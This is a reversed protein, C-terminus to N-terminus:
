CMSTSGGGGGSSNRPTSCLDGPTRAGYAICVRGYRDRTALVERVAPRLPALGIGGAVIVLDKGIAGELPWPSGFPGRVGVLDGPQLGTLAQSAAGVSRVTQTLTAPDRPDGSISIPIEGAGFASLMTFQGPAFIFAGGPAELELTVTDGLEQTVTRVPTWAPAMVAGPASEALTAM